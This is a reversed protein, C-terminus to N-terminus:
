DEDILSYLGKTITTVMSKVNCCAFSVLARMFSRFCSYIIMGAGTILLALEIVSLDILVVSILTHLM